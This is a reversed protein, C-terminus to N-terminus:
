DALVRPLKFVVDERPASGERLTVDFRAQLAAIVEAAEETSPHGGAFDVMTGDTGVTSPAQQGLLAGIRSRVDEPALKRSKAVMSTVKKIAKKKAM